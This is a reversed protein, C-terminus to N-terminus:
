NSRAARSQPRPPAAFQTMLSTGLRPMGAVCIVIRRARATKEVHVPLFLAHVFAGPTAVAYRLSVACVLRRAMGSQFDGGAPASCMSGRARRAARRFARPDAMAGPLKAPLRDLVRLDASFLGDAMDPRDRSPGSADAPPLDIGARGAGAVPYREAIRLWLDWDDAPTAEHFLGGVSEIAERRVVVSCSLM